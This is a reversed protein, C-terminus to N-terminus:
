LGSKGEERCLSRYFGSPCLEADAWQQLSTDLEVVPAIAIPNPILEDKM